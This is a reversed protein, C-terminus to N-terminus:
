SVAKDFIDLWQNMVASNDSLWNIAFDTAMKEEILTFMMRYRTDFDDICSYLGRKIVCYDKHQKANELTMCHGIEHLIFLSFIGFTFDPKFIDKVVEFIKEDEEIFDLTITIEKTKPNYEYENGFIIKLDKDFLRAFSNLEKLLKEM